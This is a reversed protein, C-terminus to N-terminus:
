DIFFLATDMATVVVSGVLVPTLVVLLLESVPLLTASKCLLKRVKSTTSVGTNTPDTTTVAISM